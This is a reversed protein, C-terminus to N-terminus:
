REIEPASNIVIDKSNKEMYEAGLDWFGFGDIFLLM